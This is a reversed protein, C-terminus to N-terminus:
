IMLRKVPIDKVLHSDIIEDLDEEDVFSYWTEDPYVVAVPGEACRNLCGAINVRVGGKKSISMARIKEKAYKRLKETDFRGCCPRNDERQNTCIFLHHKYYSMTLIISRLLFPAVLAGRETNKILHDSNTSWPCPLQQIQTM